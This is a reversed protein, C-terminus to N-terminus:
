PAETILIICPTGAPIELTAITGSANASWTEALRAAVYTWGPAPAGFSVQETGDAVTVQGVRALAAVYDSAAQFVAGIAAAAAARRRIVVRGPLGATLRDPELAVGHLRASAPVSLSGQTMSEGQSGALGASQFSVLIRGDPGAIAQGLWTSGDPASEAVVPV